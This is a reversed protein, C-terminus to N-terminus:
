SSTTPQSIQKQLQHMAVIGFVPGLALTALVVPWGIHTALLPTLQVTILTLLFGLATQLTMLSGAADAPALDAVLASFQASDPIVALGWIVFLAFVLAVPGGFAVATAIAASGSIAMAVITIQAKGIRDAYIGALPCMLAGSGIAIFATLKALSNAEDPGLQTSYSAAAAVGVWAWLAYLEWMHGLYGLFALRLRKDVWALRIAGPDFRAARAHWPGLSVKLMMLAAFMALVSAIGTTLRWQAGGFWALLHPFASGLTLGGVLLGVLMGRDHLGWGVMIKMGVPYVGALCVGTLFRMVIASEHGIPVVLLVANALGAAFAAIAFVRRPDYRDALGLISLSLAGVVFGATVSSTLLAAITESMTSEAQMDGLVASSVFWLAMAAIEAVVLWTISRRREAPDIGNVSDSDAPM